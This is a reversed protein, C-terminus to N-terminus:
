LLEDWEAVVVEGTDNNISCCRVCVLSQVFVM